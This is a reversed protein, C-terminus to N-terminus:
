KRVRLKGYVATGKQWHELIEWKRETYFMYQQGRETAPDLQDFIGMAVAYRHTLDQYAREHNWYPLKIDLLGGPKLIRWTEDMAALLTIDLHEFVAWSVVKDFTEDEWPWPLDNLDWVVDIEPRHKVVDHNVGREFVRNGAGLNLV